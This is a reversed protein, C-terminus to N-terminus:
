ETEYNLFAQDGDQYHDAWQTTTYATWAADGYTERAWREHADYMEPTPMVDGRDPDYKQIARLDDYLSM